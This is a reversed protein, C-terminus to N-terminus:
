KPSNERRAPRARNMHVPRQNVFAQVTFWFIITNLNNLPLYHFYVLIVLRLKGINKNYINRYRKILRREINKEETM